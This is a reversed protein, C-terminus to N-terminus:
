KDFTMEFLAKSFEELREPKRGISANLWLGDTTFRVIELKADRESPPQQALQDVNWKRWEKNVEPDFAISKWIADGERGDLSNLALTLFARTFRGYSVQDKEMLESIAKELSIIMVSFVACILKQKSEFHHFLAGRTVGAASAIAEMGVNQLGHVSGLDIASQIIKERVLEPNKKRKHAESM